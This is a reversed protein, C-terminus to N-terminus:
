GSEGVPRPLSVQRPAGVRQMLDFWAKSVTLIHEESQAPSVTGAEIEQCLRSLARLIGDSWRDLTLEKLSLPPAEGVSAALPATRGALRALRTELTVASSTQDLEYGEAYPAESRVIPGFTNLLTLNGRRTGVCIRHMVLQHNGADAPDYYGQVQLTAPAGGLVGQVCRFPLPDSKCLALLGADWSPAQTFGYPTLSGLVRGLIDLLSYSCQASAMADVFLPEGSERLEAALQIFTRVPEVDGFHANLHYRVGRERAKKIARVVDVPYVPHEQIVHIGRDLLRGALKSGERALPSDGVAVCAIDVDRPLEEVDRYLPVGLEDAFAQSRRSGRALIGALRPGSDRSRLATLYTQGYNTGCVVVNFRRM